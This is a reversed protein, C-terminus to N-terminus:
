GITNHMGLISLHKSLSHLMEYELLDLTHCATCFTLKVGLSLCWLCFIVVVTIVNVLLLKYLVSLWTALGVYGVLVACAQVCICLGACVCVCVYVAERERERKHTNM